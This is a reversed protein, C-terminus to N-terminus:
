SHQTFLLSSPSSSQPPSGFTQGVHVPHEGLAHTSASTSPVTLVLRFARVAKAFDVAANKPISGM